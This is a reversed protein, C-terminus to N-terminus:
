NFTIGKILYVGGSIVPGSGPLWSRVQRFVPWGTVLLSEGGGVFAVVSGLCALVFGFGMLPFFASPIQVWVLLFRFGLLFNRM